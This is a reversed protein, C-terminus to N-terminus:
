TYDRSSTVIWRQPRPVQKRTSSRRYPRRDDDVSIFVDIAGAPEAFEVVLEDGARYPHPGLSASSFVAMRDYYRDRGVFPDDVLARDSTVQMPIAIAAFETTGERTVEGSAVAVARAEDAQMSVIVYHSIQVDAFAGMGEPLASQMMRDFATRGLTGQAEPTMLQWVRDEDSKQIASLWERLVAIVKGFAPTDQDPVEETPTTGGHPEAEDSPEGAPAPHPGPPPSSRILANGDVVAIAIVAAAALATAGLKRRRISRGRSVTQQLDVGVVPLGVAARQLEHRIADELSM